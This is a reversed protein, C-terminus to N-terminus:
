GVDLCILIGFLLWPVQRKELLQSNQLHLAVLRVTLSKPCACLDFIIKTERGAIAKAKAEKRHEEGTDMTRQSPRIDLRHGELVHGNMAALAAQADMKTRFELFGFGMSLLQGPKKPDTKTKVRASTFGALPAFTDRLQETTTTFNLNRVFLTSSEAAVNSPTEQLLDSTSIKTKISTQASSELQKKPSSTFVDKPAKELFLISDKIRRYKLADFAARGEPPHAFEILAMTGSPPILFRNIQGHPSFLNRIEDPNTGHPFNKVLIATDGRQRGPKFTDLDVGNDAFYSKAEQIVHTEALAQKVAADSSTHDLLSSKEVGLRASISSMVDDMNMYLPNWKHTASSAEMKRRIKMQQKLPLQSIAFEDLKNERKPAAPLVHLLRGQFTRGDMSKFAEVASETDVYQLYAFGKAKGSSKDL